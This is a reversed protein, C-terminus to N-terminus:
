KFFKIFNNRSYPFNINNPILINKKLYESILNLSNFIDRNDKYKRPWKRNFFKTSNNKLHM